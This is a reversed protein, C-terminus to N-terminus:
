PIKWQFDDMHEGQNQVNTPFKGWVDLLSSEERVM